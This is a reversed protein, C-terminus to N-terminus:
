GIVYTPSQLIYIFAFKLSHSNRVKIRTSNRVTKILHYTLATPLVTIGWPMVTNHIFFM